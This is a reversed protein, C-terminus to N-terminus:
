QEQRYVEIESARSRAIKETRTSVPCHIQRGFSALIAELKCVPPDDLREVYRNTVSAAQSVERHTPGPELLADDGVDDDGGNISGEEQANRAALVAQCFEEDTTEVMMQLEDSPNLMAEVDM